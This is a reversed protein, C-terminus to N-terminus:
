SWKKRMTLHEAAFGLRRYLTRMRTNGVHVKGVVETVDNGAAFRVAADVLAEAVPTESGASIALSRLNGYAEGTLFNKKISIWVWGLVAEDSSRSAAVFTGEGPGDIAAAVRKRHYAPDDIPNDPFSIRAIEVEFEAIADLDSHRAPRVVVDVASTAAATM